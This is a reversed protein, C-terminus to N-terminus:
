KEAKLKNRLATDSDFSRAREAKLALAADKAMVRQQEARAEAADRDRELEVAAREADTCESCRLYGWDPARPLEEQFLVCVGAKRSLM